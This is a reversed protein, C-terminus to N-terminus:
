NEGEHRWCLLKQSATVNEEIENTEWACKQKEVEESGVLKREYLRSGEEEITKMESLIIKM